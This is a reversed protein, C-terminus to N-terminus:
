KPQAELDVIRKDTVKLEKDLQDVTRQLKTIEQQNIQNLVRLEEVRQEWSASAALSCFFMVLLAAFALPARWFKM